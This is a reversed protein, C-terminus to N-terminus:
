GLKEGIYLVNLYKNYHNLFTILYIRSPHFMIVGFQVIQNIRKFKPDM